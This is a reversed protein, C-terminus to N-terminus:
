ILALLMGGSLVVLWAVLMGLLWRVRRPGMAGDKKGKAVRRKNSPPIRWIRQDNRILCHGNCRRQGVRFGPPEPSGGPSEGNDIRFLIANRRGGAVGRLAREAANNTLCVRGDDLFRTFAAKQEITLNTSAATAHPWIAVCIRFSAGISCGAFAL